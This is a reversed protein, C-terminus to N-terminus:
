RNIQRWDLRGYKGPKTKRICTPQTDGISAPPRHTEMGESSPVFTSPLPKGWDVLTSSM